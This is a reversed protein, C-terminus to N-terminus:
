IEDLIYSNQKYGFLNFEGYREYSTVQM